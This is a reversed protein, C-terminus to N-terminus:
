LEVGMEEIKKCLENNKEVLEDVKDALLNCYKMIQALDERTHFICIDGNHKLRVGIKKM